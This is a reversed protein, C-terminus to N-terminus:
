GLMEVFARGSPPIPNLFRIYDERVLVFNRMRFDDLGEGYKPYESVGFPNELLLRYQYQRALDFLEKMSRKNRLWTSNYELQVLAVGKSKFLKQAGLLASIEEGEIDLKILDIECCNNEEWIDDLTRTNLKMFGQKLDKSLFSSGNGIENNGVLSATGREASLLCNLLYVRRDSQYKKTLAEFNAPLPEICTVRKLYSNYKLVM